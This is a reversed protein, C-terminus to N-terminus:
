GNFTSEEQGCIGDRFKYFRTCISAIAKRHSVIIFTKDSLKQSILEVMKQETYEDVNSTPEDLLYLDKDKILLGRILNLRQRQGTSVFVGREGLLTDLGDAQSNLWDGLGVSEMMSILEEDQIDPNGLTLNDRVSMDFIETDQSIFVCNIRDSTQKGDIYVNDTELQRSLINLTTTKGQGSEGYICVKDGRRVSMLPIQIRVTNKTVDHQYTYDANRIDITNFSSIIDSKNLNFDNVIKDVKKQASIYLDLRKFFSAIQKAMHVLQVSLPSVLAYFEIKDFGFDYKTTMFMCIPAFMYVVFKFICYFVDNAETNRITATCYEDLEDDLRARMFKNAQMKQVTNINTSIDIFTKTVVGDAEILRNTFPMVLKKGVVRIATGLVVILVLIVSFIWHYHVLRVAFYGVYVVAMILETILFLMLDARKGQLTRILGTVYGTNVKKLVEPKTKYISDFGNKFTVSEVNVYLADDFIDLLYECGCWMGILLAYLLALKIMDESQDVISTVLKMNLEIFICSCITWITVLTFCLAMFAKNVGNLFKHIM